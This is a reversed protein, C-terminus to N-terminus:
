IIQAPLPPCSLKFVGRDQGDHGDMMGPWPWTCSGAGPYSDEWSTVTGSVIMAGDRLGSIERNKKAEPALYLGSVQRHSIADCFLFMGALNM